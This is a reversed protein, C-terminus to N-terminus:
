YRLAGLVSSVEAASEFALISFLFALVGMLIIFAVGGPKFDSSKSTLAAFLTVIHLCMLALFMYILM